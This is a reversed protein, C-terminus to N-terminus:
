HQPRLYCEVVSTVFDIWGDDLSYLDIPDGQTALYPKIILPLIVLNRILASIGEVNIDSRYRGSKSLHRIVDDAMQKGYAAWQQVFSDRITSNERLMESILIRLLVPHRNFSAAYMAMMSRLPDPVEDRLMAERLKAIDGRIQRLSQRLIDDLLGEMGGFYYSVMAPRTGAQAAIEKITIEQPSKTELCALAALVIDDAVKRNEHSAPRGRAHRENAAPPHSNKEGLSNTMPQM